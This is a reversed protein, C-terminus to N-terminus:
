FRPKSNSQWLLFAGWVDSHATKVYDNWGAIPQFKGKTGLVPILNHSSNCLAKIICLYM